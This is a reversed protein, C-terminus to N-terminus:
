SCADRAIKVKSYDRWTKPYGVNNTIANLKAIAARKTDASMWDLAQIDRALAKELATVLQTIQAKAGPGFTLEIYKQGLLDGLERCAHQARAM